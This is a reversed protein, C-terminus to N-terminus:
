NKGTSGFGNNARVTKSLETVEVLPPTYIPTFVIQAIRDGANVTYDSNGNNFLPVLIEGRYDSDIVGVSNALIISHKVSIGSRSYILGVYGSDISMCIGTNILICEKPKITKTVTSYLDYGASDVTARSPIIADECIKKIEM